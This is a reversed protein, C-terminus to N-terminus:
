LERPRAYLRQLGAYRLDLGRDRVVRLLAEGQLPCGVLLVADVLVLGPSPQDARVLPMADLEGALAQVCRDGEPGLFSLLALRPIHGGHDDM